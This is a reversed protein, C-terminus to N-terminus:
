IYALALAKTYLAGNKEIEEKFSSGVLVKLFPNFNEAQIGLNKSLYNRLDALYAGGGSLYISDIKEVKYTVSFTDITNQIEAALKQHFEKQNQSAGQLNIGVLPRSFYFQGYGIITMLTHTTGIDVAAMWREASSYNLDTAYALSVAEPEIASVKLGCKNLIQMTQTIVQKKVAYSVVTKTKSDPKDVNKLQSYRIVYQDIAGEVIDRMKWKVAEKFDAEPMQPLEVKRIRMSEDDLCCAVNAGSLKNSEIFKKISHIKEEQNEFSFKGCFQLSSQGGEQHKLQVAKITQSGIDLGLTANKKLSFRSM